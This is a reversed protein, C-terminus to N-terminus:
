CLTKCHLKALIM